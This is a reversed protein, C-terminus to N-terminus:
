KLAYHLIIDLFHFQKVREVITNNITLVPYKVKRQMSHFVILKTKQAYLSLKNSGLWESIKKLESNLDNENTNNSLNCYLTTDDAYM